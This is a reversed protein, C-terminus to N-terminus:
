LTLLDELGTVLAVRAGLQDALEARTLGDLTRAGADDFMVRPLVVWEGLDLRHLAAVVDQGTLLGSVSVTTGFFRNTVPVLTLTLSLTENLSAVIPWLVPAILTGCVLTAERYSPQIGDLRPQLAEWEDLLQRTLGVGNELQPFGDYVETPPIPMGALLYIEDSLYVLNVGYEERYAIQRPAVQAILAQAQSPTVTQLGRRHFRTLGVPVIAVSQVMPYLSALDDLTTELIEGDNMGPVLVIQTHIQIGMEGLGQLQAMIEPARPNGLMQRRLDHDTTHVSVYLPSLHQEGIRAWDRRTLNTLTVFNGFLFSYRFDDDRIYLSRRQGPAMQQVFCFTCRCQCRRIGDFTPNKFELGLTEDYGREIEYVLERGDRRTVLTLEEEAGYFRVDLIDHVPHGNIAMLRDGPQIEVEEAISGRSVAAIVGGPTSSPTVDGQRSRAPM